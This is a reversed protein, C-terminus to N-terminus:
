AHDVERRGARILIRVFENYTRTSRVQGSEVRACFVEMADLADELLAETSSDRDCMERYIGLCFLVGAALTLFLMFNDM